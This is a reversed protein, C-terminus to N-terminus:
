KAVYEYQGDSNKARELRGDRLLRVLAPSLDTAKYKRGRTDQLHAIVDRILKPENFFGGDILEGIIRKPGPRGGSSRKSRQSPASAGASEPVQNPKKSKRRKRPPSQMKPVAQTGEKAVRQEGPEMIRYRYGNSEKVRDVLSGSAGGLAHSVSSRDTPIRFKESLIKAIESPTLGDIQHAVRAGHLIALARDLVTTAARVKPHETANMEKILVQALDQEPAPHKVSASQKTPSAGQRADSGGTSVAPQEAGSLLDIARHFAAEQLNEPVNKAIEAAKLIREQIERPDM